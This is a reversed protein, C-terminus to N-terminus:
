ATETEIDEMFYEVMGAAATFRETVTFRYGFDRYYSDSAAQAVYYFADIARDADFKGARYKKSLNKITPVIARAYIAGNNVAYLMLERSEATEIVKMNKTRKM